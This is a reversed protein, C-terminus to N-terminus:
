SLPIQLVAGLEAVSHVLHEPQCPAIDARTYFGYTVGIGPLGAAHAAQIDHPADGVYVADAADAQARKLGLLIPAPDPKRAATDEATVVATFLTIDLGVAQLDLQTRSLSKNTVLSPHRGHAVLGRVLELAGPFLTVLHVFDPYAAQYADALQAARTEDVVRFLELPRMAYVLAAPIQPPPFQGNLHERFVNAYSATVTARSDILTGDLDFLVHKCTAARTM